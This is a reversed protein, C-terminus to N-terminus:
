EFIEITYMAKFQEKAALKIIGEKKEIEQNANVGDAIGLWPEICVFPAKHKAWIGMYPFGKYSVTVSEDSKKSKLSIKTSKLDKFVLADKIFIDSHLNIINGGNFVRKTATDILKDAVRYSEAEEVTEFELYYDGYSENSNIPCKFAPHAGFSFYMEKDSPNIVKHTIQVTNDKLEFTTIFEFDFPYVKLSEKDSKLLFSLSHETKELLKVNDTSRMFGHQPLSYEKGEYKFVGKKLAGVIPFLIPAQGSWIEPNGEWIFEKGSKVSKLSCIEAGKLKVSLQLIKNEIKYIM